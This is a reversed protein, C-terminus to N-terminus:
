NSIHYLGYPLEKEIIDKVRNAVDISYSPSSVIDDAVRLVKNGNKLGAIMKEVFQSGKLSPGFMVPIRIIYYKGTHATIMSDGGLKTVGYINKPYAM